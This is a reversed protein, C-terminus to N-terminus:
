NEFSISSKMYTESQKMSERYSEDNERIAYAIARLTWWIALFQYKKM